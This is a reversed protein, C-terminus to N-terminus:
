SERSEQKAGGREGRHRKVEREGAEAITVVGASANSM